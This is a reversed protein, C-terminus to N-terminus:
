RGLFPGGSKRHEDDLGSWVNEITGAQQQAVIATATAFVRAAPKAVV